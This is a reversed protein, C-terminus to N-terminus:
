SLLFHEAIQKKPTSKLYQRPFGDLFDRVDQPSVNSPLLKAIESIDSELAPQQTYQDDALGLTLHNYTEVYLQWLLDEKWPTVVENNVAKMDAYTMLLLMRLNEINGVVDAFQRIVEAESFDRRLILKAME